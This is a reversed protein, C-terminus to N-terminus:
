DAASEEGGESHGDVRVRGGDEEEEGGRAEHEPQARGAGGRVGGEGGCAEAEAEAERGM